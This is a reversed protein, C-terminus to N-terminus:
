IFDCNMPFVPKYARRANTNRIFCQSRKFGTQNDSFFICYFLFLRRFDGMSLNLALKTLGDTYKVHFTEM